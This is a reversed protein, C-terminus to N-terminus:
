PTESAPEQEVQLWSISFTGELDGAGDGSIRFTQVPDTIAGGEFLTALQAATAPRADLLVGAGTTGIVIRASGSGGSATRYELRIARFPLVMTRLRGLRSVKLNIAARVSRASEPLTIWEGVDATQAAFPITRVSSAHARRELLLRDTKGAGQAVARSVHWGALLAQWTAPADWIMNRQDISDVSVIVFDPQSARLRDAAWSDLEETLTAYMQLTPYPVCVLDNAPCISLEWPVVMVTRRGIVRKWQAPLLDRLGLYARSAERMNRADDLNAVRIMRNAAFRGVLIDGLRLAYARTSAWPATAVFLGATALLLAVPPVITRRRGHLLVAATGVWWLLGFFFPIHEWDARLFAHKASFPILVACVLFVDAGGRARGSLLAIAATLVLLLGAAAAVSSPGVISMSDNYGRSLEMSQRIFGVLVPLSGFVMWSLSGVVVGYTALAGIVVGARKQRRYWLLCAIATTLFAALGTAFKVFILVGALVASVILLPAAGLDVAACATLAMAGALHYDFELNWTVTVLFGALFLLVAVPERRRLFVLVATGLIVGHVALRAWTAVLVNHGVDLPRALYGLPGYSFILDHGWRFGAAAFANIGWMWSPDLGGAIPNFDGPFTLLAVLAVLVLLTKDRRELRTTTSTTHQPM